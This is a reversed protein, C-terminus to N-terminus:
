EDWPGQFIDNDFGCHLSSFKDYTIKQEIKKGASYGKGQKIFYTM